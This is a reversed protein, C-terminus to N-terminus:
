SGRYCVSGEKKTQFQSEALKTKYYEPLGANVGRQIHPWAHKFLMDKIADEEEKLIDLPVEKILKGIDRPSNELEGADRLHHIAKNWRAETRFSAVISQIIDSNKPNQEKFNAQNKEKFGEAVFKGMLVKKDPGFRNYNKIVVGEIKVGGLVSERSLLEHVTGVSTVLGHHILPVTEFGLRASERAKEDYTLYCEEDTNIDFIIINNAPTRGYSLCNHRPSQLYEGRYTWGPTLPLTRIVKVAQAFMKEPADLVLEKGKSRARLVGDIIGFSFQSGDVKEEVVVPNNFLDALARHGLAYISPYSHWSSM